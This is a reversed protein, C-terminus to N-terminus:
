FNMGHYHCEFCNTTAGGVGACGEYLPHCVSSCSVGGGCQHHPSHCAKCMMPGHTSGQWSSSTKGNIASRIHWYFGKGHPEHCDICMLVYNKSVPDVDYPAIKFGTGSNNDTANVLGHQASTWDIARVVSSDERTQEVIHCELCLTNYDPAQNVDIWEYGGGVKKPPQYVGSGINNVMKEDSDDGWIEWIAQDQHGSPLSCPLERTAKHPNHCASCPNVIANNYNWGWKGNMYTRLDKLNHVSIGYPWTFKFADKINDPDINDTQGGRTNSYLYNTVGGVQLATATDRHCDVCLGDTQNIFQKERFLMLRYLGCTSADFTDHCHACGGVEYEADIRNVGYSTSLHAPQPMSDSDAPDTCRMYEQYNTWTDGDFDGDKGM